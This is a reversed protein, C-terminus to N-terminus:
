KPGLPLFQERGRFYLITIPINILIGAPYLVAVHAEVNLAVPLSGAGPMVPGQIHVWVFIAALAITLIPIVKGLNQFVLSASVAVAKSLDYNDIMIAPIAFIILPLFLVVLLVTFVTLFTLVQLALVRALKPLLRRALGRVTTTQKLYADCTALSTVAQVVGLLGFTMFWVALLSSFKGLRALSNWTSVPGGSIGSSTLVKAAFFAAFPLCLLLAVIGWALLVLGKQRIVDSSSTWLERMTIGGRQRGAIENSGSEIDMM